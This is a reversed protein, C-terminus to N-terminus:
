ALAGQRDVIQAATRRLVEAASSLRYGADARVDDIPSLSAAVDADTIDRVAEPLAGILQQEVAALRTAVPGCSGVALAAQSIRGQTIELRVAVM